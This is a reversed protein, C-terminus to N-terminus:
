AFCRSQVQGIKQAARHTPPDLDPDAATIKMIGTGKEVWSLRLFNKEARRIRLPVPSCQGTLSM